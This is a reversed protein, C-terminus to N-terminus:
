LHFFPKESLLSCLTCGQPNWPNCWYNTPRIPHRWDRHLHMWVLTFTSCNLTKSPPFGNRTIACTIPHELTQMGSKAPTLLPPCLTYLPMHTAMTQGPNCNPTARELLSSAITSLTDESKAISASHDKIRRWQDPLLMSQELQVSNTSCLM